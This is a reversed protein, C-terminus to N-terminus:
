PIEHERRDGSVPAWILTKLPTGKAHHYLVVTREYFGRTHWSDPFKFLHFGLHHCFEHVVHEPVDQLIHSGQM